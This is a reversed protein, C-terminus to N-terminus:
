RSLDERDRPARAKPYAFASIWLRAPRRRCPCGGVLPQGGVFLHDLAGPRVRPTTLRGGTSRVADVKVAAAGVVRAKPFVSRNDGSGAYGFEAANGPTDPLDVEFGNIAVLRRGRLWTGRTGRDAM